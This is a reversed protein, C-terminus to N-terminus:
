MSQPSGNALGQLQDNFASALMQAARGGESSEKLTIRWLTGVGKGWGAKAVHSFSNARRRAGARDTSM